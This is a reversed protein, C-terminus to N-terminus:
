VKFRRIVNIYETIKKLLDLLYNYFTSMFVVTKEKKARILKAM